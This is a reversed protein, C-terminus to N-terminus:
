ISAADGSLELADYVEALFYAIAKERSLLFSLTLVLVPRPHLIFNMSGGTRVVAFFYVIM